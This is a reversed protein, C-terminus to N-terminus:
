SKLQRAKSCTRAAPEILISPPSYIKKILDERLHAPLSRFVTLMGVTKLASELRNKKELRVNECRWKMERKRKERQNMAHEPQYTLESLLESQCQHSPLSKRAM